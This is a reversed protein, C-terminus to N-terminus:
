PLMGVCMLISQNLLQQHSKNIADPQIPNSMNLNGDHEMHYIEVVSSFFESPLFPV